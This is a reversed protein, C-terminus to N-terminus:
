SFKESKLTNLVLGTDLRVTCLFNYSSPYRLHTTFFAMLIRASFTLFSRIFQISVFNYSIVPFSYDETIFTFHFNGHIITYQYPSPGSFFKCGLTQIRTSCKHKEFLKQILNFPLFCTKSSM